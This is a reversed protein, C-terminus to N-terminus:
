IPRMASIHRRMKQGPAISFPYNMAEPYGLLWFLFIAIGFLISTTARLYNRM